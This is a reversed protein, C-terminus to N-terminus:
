SLHFGTCRSIHQECTSSTKWPKDHSHLSSALTTMKRLTPSRGSIVNVIPSREGRHPSSSELTCDKIAFVKVMQRYQGKREMKIKQLLDRWFMSEPITGTKGKQKM